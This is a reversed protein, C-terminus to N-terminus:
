LVKRAVEAAGNGGFTVLVRNASNRIQREQGTIKLFERRFLVYQPGLLHRTGNQAQYSLAEAGYNPNIVIDSAFPLANADDITVIFLGARKLTELYDLYEGLDETVDDNGLDTVLLTAGHRRAGQLTFELDESPSWGSPSVEVPYGADAAKDLLENVVTSTLFVPQAGAQQLGDALALCRMLHGMGLRPSGDSRILCITGNLEM